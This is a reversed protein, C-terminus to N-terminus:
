MADKGFLVEINRQLREEVLLITKKSGLVLM